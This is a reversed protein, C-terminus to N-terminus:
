RAIMYNKKSCVLGSPYIQILKYGLRMDPVVVSMCLNRLTQYLLMTLPEYDSRGTFLSFQILCYYALPAFVLYETNSPKIVVKLDLRVAIIFEHDSLITKLIDIGFLIKLVNVFLYNLYAIHEAFRNNCCTVNMKKIGLIFHVTTHKHGSFSKLIRIHLGGKEKTCGLFHKRLKIIQPEVLRIFYYNGICALDCIHDLCYLRHTRVLTRRDNLIGILYKRIYTVPSCPFNVSIIQRLLYRCPKIPLKM